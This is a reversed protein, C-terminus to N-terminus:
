LYKRNYNQFVFYKLCEVKFETIEHTLLLVSVDCLSSASLFIQLGKTGSPLREGTLKSHVM